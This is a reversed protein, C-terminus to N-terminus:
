KHAAENRDTHKRDFKRRETPSLTQWPEKTETADVAELTTAHDAFDGFFSVNDQLCKM